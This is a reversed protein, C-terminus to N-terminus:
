GVSLFIYDTIKEPDPDIMRQTQFINTFPKVECSFSDSLYFVFCDRFKATSISAFM